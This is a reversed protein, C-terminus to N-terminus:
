SGVELGEICFWFCENLHVRVIRLLIPKPVNKRGVDYPYIKFISCLHHLLGTLLLLDEVDRLLVSYIDGVGDVKVVM